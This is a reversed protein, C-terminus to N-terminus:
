RSAGQRGTKDPGPLHCGLDRLCGETSESAGGRRRHVWQRRGAKPPGVPAAVGETSGSAGGRRRHVWQRRGAKPLGVPAAMGRRRARAGPGLQLNRSVCLFYIQRYAASARAAVCCLQVAPVQQARYSTEAGTAFKKFRAQYRQGICM